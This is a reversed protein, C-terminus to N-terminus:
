EDDGATLARMLPALDEVDRTALTVEQKSKWGLQHLSLRAQSSNLTGTLAGKELQAEKRMMMRDIAERVAEHRQATKMVTDYKWHEQYCLEKLIPVPTGDTYTNIRDVMYKRNYKSQAKAM